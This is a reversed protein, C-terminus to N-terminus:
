REVIKVFTGNVPRLTMDTKIRVTNAPDCAGLRYHGLLKVLTAKIELLAYKQGICNRAGASFPVYAYPHRKSSNEENFREPDFRTPEPFVAPNNHMGYILIAVDIGPPVKSGDIIMDHASKRGIVPVSPHIRLVEKITMELYKLEQLNSYTLQTNKFDPGLVQVMEDYLKQQVAPNRAIHYAAFSICSTTTDHGAFMFTDVEERIDANSLPHGDVSVNLLLELLTMKRKGYIDTEELKQQTAERAQESELQTKRTVIVSDTFSHLVALAAKQRQAAKQLHFFIKYERMMSFLRRFIINSMEKVAKVYPSDPNDQANIKVGMASESIIDLTCLTVDEYINFDGKGVRTRLKRVFDESRRNFIDLFEELIKFHFAPTIIRRRQAWKKGLATILGENLWPKMFEYIISKKVTKANLVQEVVPASTVQLVPQNFLSQTILDDGYRRHFGFFTAFIGPPTPDKRYLFTNGLVPVSPVTGFKPLLRQLKRVLLLHRATTTVVWTVLVAVLASVLIALM